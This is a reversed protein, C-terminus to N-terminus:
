GGGRPFIRDVGRVPAVFAVVNDVAASLELGEYVKM